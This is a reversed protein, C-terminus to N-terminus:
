NQHVQTRIDNRFLQLNNYNQSDFSFFLFITFQLLYASFLQSKVKQVFVQQIKQPIQEFNPAAARELPPVM